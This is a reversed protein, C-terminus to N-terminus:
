NKSNKGSMVKNKKIEQDKAKIIIQFTKFENDLLNQSRTGMHKVTLFGALCIIQM